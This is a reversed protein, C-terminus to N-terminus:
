KRVPGKSDTVGHFVVASTKSAQKNSKTKSAQKNSKTKSAQKNSKTKFICAGGLFSSLYNMRKVSESDGVQMSYVAYVSHSNGNSQQTVCLCMCVCIFMCVCVCMYMCMFVYVCVCSCVCVCLYAHVCVCACVYMCVCVYVCVNVCVSECVCVSWVCVCIQM